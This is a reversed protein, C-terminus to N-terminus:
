LTASIFQKIKEFYRKGGIIYTDNHGAGEIIYFDKPENAATFLKKGMEVPVIDDRDGHIFLVPINIKSIKSLSDFKHSVVRRLPIYPYHLRGMDKVSTFASELILGRAKIRLVLDIAVSAGLSRGFIIIKNRDIDNRSYLYNFAAMADSYVGAESPRGQSKGYGRYDFIFVNIGEDHLLKINEVRHSINGANGHCWLLNPNEKGSITLWGNLLLGDDTKFYADIYNLGMDKPTYEINKLPYFIFFRELFSEFNVVIMSMGTILLILIFLRKKNIKM